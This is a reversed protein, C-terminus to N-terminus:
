LEPYFTKSYSKMNYQLLSNSVLQIHTEYYEDISYSYQYITRIIDPNNDNIQVTFEYKGPFLVLPELHDQM